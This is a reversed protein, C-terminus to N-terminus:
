NSSPLRRDCDHFVDLYWSPAGIGRAVALLDRKANKVNAKIRDRDWNYIKSSSIDAHAQEIIEQANEYKEQYESEMQSVLDANGSMYQVARESFTHAQYSAFKYNYMYHVAESIQCYARGMRNSIEERAFGEIAHAGSSFVLVACLSLLTKM